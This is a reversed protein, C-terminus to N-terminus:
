LQLSIGHYTPFNIILLVRERSTHPIGESEAWTFKAFKGQCELVNVTIVVLKWFLPNLSYSITSIKSCFIRNHKTLKSAHM